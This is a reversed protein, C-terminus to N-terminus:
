SVKERRKERRVKERRKEKERTALRADHFSKMRCLPLLTGHAAKTGGLVIAMPRCLHPFDINIHNIM